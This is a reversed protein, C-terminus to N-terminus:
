GPPALVADRDVARGRVARMLRAHQARLDQEVGADDVDHEAVRVRGARRPAARRPPRRAAAARRQASSTASRRSSAASRAEDSDDRADTVSAASAARARRQDVRQAPEDVLRPPRLTCVCRRDRAEAADRDERADDDASPRRLVDALAVEPQPPVSRRRRVALASRPTRAPMVRMKRTPSSSSMTVGAARRSTGRGARPRPPRRARRSQPDVVDPLGSRRRDSRARSQQRDRDREDVDDPKVFTMLRMSPSSPSAAPTVAIAPPSGGRARRVLAVPEIAAARAAASM